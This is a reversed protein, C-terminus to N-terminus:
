LADLLGDLWGRIIEVKEDLENRYALELVKSVAMLHAEARQYNLRRKAEPDADYGDPQRGLQRQQQSSMGHSENTQLGYYPPPGRHDTFEGPGFTVDEWLGQGDEGLDLGLFLKSTNDPTLANQEVDKGESETSSHSSEGSALKDASSSFVQHALWRAMYETTGTEVIQSSPSSSNSATPQHHEQCYCDAEVGM